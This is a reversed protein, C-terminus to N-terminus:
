TQYGFLEAFRLTGSTSSSINHCLPVGLLFGVERDRLCLNDITPREFKITLDNTKKIKSQSIAMPNDLYYLCYLFYFAVDDDDNKSFGGGGGTLNLLKEQGCVDSLVKIVHYEAERLSEISKCIALEGVSYGLPKDKFHSDNEARYPGFFKSGGVYIRASQIYKVRPIWYNLPDVLQDHISTLQNEELKTIIPDKEGLEPMVFGEMLKHYKCFPSTKSEPM